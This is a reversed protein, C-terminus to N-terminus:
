KCKGIIEIMGEPDLAKSKRCIKITVYTVLAGIGIGVFYVPNGSVLLFTATGAAAVPLLTYNLIKNTKSQRYKMAEKYADPYARLYTDAFRAINKRTVPIMKLTDWPFTVFYTFENAYRRPVNGTIIMNNHYDPNNGDNSVMRVEGLNQIYRTYYLSIPGKYIQPVFIHYDDNVVSRYFISDQIFGFIKSAPYMRSTSWTELFQDTFNRRWYVTESITDERNLFITAPKYYILLGTHLSPQEVDPITRKQTKELVSLKQAFSVETGAFVLFLILLIVHKPM